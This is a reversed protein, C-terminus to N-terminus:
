NSPSGTNSDKSETEGSSKKAEKKELALNNLKMAADTLKGVGVIDKSLIVAMAEAIQDENKPDVVRSGDQNCLCLAVLRIGKTLSESKMYDLLNGADLSGLKIIGEWEEVPVDIYKTDSKSKLDGLSLFRKEPVTLESM